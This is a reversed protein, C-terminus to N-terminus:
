KKKKKKKSKSEEKETIVLQGKKIPKQGQINMKINKKYEAGDKDLKAFLKDMQNSSKDASKEAESEAQTKLIGSKKLNRKLARELKLEKNKESIKKANLQKEKDKAKKILEKKEKAKKILKAKRKVDLKTKTKESEIKKLENEIDVLDEIVKESSKFLDKFDSITEPEAGDIDSAEMNFVLKTFDNIQTATKGLEKAKKESALRKVNEIPSSSVAAFGAVVNEFIERPVSAFEDTIIDNARQGRIKTGDGLPLCTITSKGMKMVCRDVDRRPGSSPGMIDRLLPSNQWITDMYEFLVKSQRFAAGVIVIKRGPMFFARLMSYLSLIFSKGLGRSGILMPFKRNWLEHLILSQMPLIDINFVQKCVFSFYEPQSM